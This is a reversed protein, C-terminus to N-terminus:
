GASPSATPSSPGARATATVPAAARGTFGMLRAVVPAVEASVRVMVDGGLPQCSELRMANATVTREAASCDAEAGALAALDAVAAVRARQVAQAAVGVGILGALLLMSMLALAWVM